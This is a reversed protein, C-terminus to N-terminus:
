RGIKGSDVHRITERNQGGFFGDDVRPIVNRNCQSSSPPNKKSKKLGPALICIRRGTM